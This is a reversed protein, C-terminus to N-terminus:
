ALLGHLEGDMVNIWTKVWQTMNGLTDDDRVEGTTTDQNCRQWDEKGPFGNATPHTTNTINPEHNSIGLAESLDLVGLELSDLQGGLGRSANILAAKFEDL